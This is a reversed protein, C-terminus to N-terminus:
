LTCRSPIKEVGHAEEEWPLNLISCKEEETQIELFQSNTIIV